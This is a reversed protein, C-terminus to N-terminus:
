KTAQKETRLRILLHFATYERLDDSSEFQWKSLPGHEVFSRTAPTVYARPARRLLEELLLRFNHTASDNKEPGLYEYNM